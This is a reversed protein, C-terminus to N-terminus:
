VNALQSNTSSRKKAYAEQTARTQRIAKENEELERQRSLVDTKKQEELASKAQDGYYVPQIGRAARQRNLEIESINADELGAENMLGEKSAATQTEDGIALKRRKEAVQRALAIREKTYKTETELNTQAFNAKREINAQERKFPKLAAGGTQNEMGAANVRDIWNLKNTEVDEARQSTMESLTNVFEEETQANRIDLEKFQEEFEVESNRLSILLDEATRIKGEKIGAELEAFKKEYYPQVMETAKQLYADKEADSLFIPLQSIAIDIDILRDTLEQKFRANAEDVLQNQEIIQNNNIVLSDKEPSKQSSFQPIWEGRNGSVYVEGTSPDTYKVGANQASYMPKAM